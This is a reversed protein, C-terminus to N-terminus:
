ATVRLFKAGIMARAGDDLRVMAVSGNMAWAIFTGSGKGGIPAAWYVRAGKSM